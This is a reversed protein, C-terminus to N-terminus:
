RVKAFIECHRSFAGLLAEEKNVSLDAFTNCVYTHLHAGGM